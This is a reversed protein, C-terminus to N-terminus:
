VGQSGRGGYGRGATYAQLRLWQIKVALSTGM